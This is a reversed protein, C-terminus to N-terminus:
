AFVSVSTSTSSNAREAVSGSTASGALRLVTSTM